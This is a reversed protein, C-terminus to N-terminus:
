PLAFRLEVRTGRGGASTIEVGTAVARMLALGRGHTGQLRSSASAGAGGIGAGWDEVVVVIAGDQERADLRYTSSPAAGDYAHLVCNTCAETVALRVNERLEGSIGLADCLESVAARARPIGNPTALLELTLDPSPV